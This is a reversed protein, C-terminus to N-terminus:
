FKNKESVLPNNKVLNQLYAKFYMSIFLNIVYHQDCSWSPRWTWTHYFGKFSKKGPGLSVIEVFKTHIMQSQQWNYNTLIIVRPQGQGIKALDFKAVKDKIYFIHCQHM